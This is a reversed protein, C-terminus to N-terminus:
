SRTNKYPSFAWDFGNLDTCKRAELDFTFYRKRRELFIDEDSGCEWYDYLSTIKKIRHLYKARDPKCFLLLPSVFHKPCGNFALFAAIFVRDRYDLDSLWIKRRVTAPWRNAPGLCEHQVELWVNPYNLM